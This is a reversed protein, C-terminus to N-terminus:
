GGLFLSQVLPTEAKFGIIETWNDLECDDFIGFNGAYMNRMEQEDRDLSFSSINGSEIQEKLTQPVIIVQEDLANVRDGAYNENESFEYVGGPNHWTFRLFIPERSNKIMDYLGKDDVLYAWNFPIDGDREAIKKKCVFSVKGELCIEPSVPLSITLTKLEKLHAPTFWSYSVASM